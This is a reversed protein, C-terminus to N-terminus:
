KVGKDKLEGRVRTLYTPDPYGYPGTKSTKLHIDNFTVVNDAGTTTSRGITFLVKNKFARTLLKSIEAGEINNPLYADVNKGKYRLGPNPHNPGQIGGPITFEIKIHGREAYGPLDEDKYYNTIYVGGDPQDGIIEGFVKSCMPCVPKAKMSSDWCEKCFKKGCCPSRFPNTLTDMCIPCDEEKDKSEISKSARSPRFSSSIYIPDPTSSTSPIQGFKEDFKDQVEKIKESNMDIFYVTELTNNTKNSLYYIANIAGNIFDKIKVNLMNTGLLSLAITRLSLSYALKFVNIIATEIGNTNTGYPINVHFIHIVSKNLDLNIRIPTCGFEEKISQNKLRKRYDSDSKDLISKSLGKISSLDLTNTTVIAQIGNKIIIDGSEVFIDLKNRINYHRKNNANINM